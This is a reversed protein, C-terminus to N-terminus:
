KVLIPEFEDIKYIRLKTNEIRLVADETDLIQKFLYQRGLGEFNKGLVVENFNLGYEDITKFIVNAFDYGMFAYEQPYTGYKDKYIDEFNMFDVNEEEYWFSKTFHLNASSVYELRVIQSNEWGPMGFLLVENNKSVENVQRLFMHIFNEDFSNVIVVNSAGDDIYDSLKFKTDVSKASLEINSYNIKNEMDRDENLADLYMSLMDAYAQSSANSHYIFKFHPNTISDLGFEVMSLSHQELSPEFQYYKPNGMSATKSPSFPSLHLIDKEKAYESAAIVNQKTYPGVLIDFEKDKMKSLVNNMGTVSNNDDYVQINFKADFDLEKFALIMGELFSAAIDSEESITMEQFNRLKGKSWARRVSDEMFPLILAVEYVDKKIIENPIITDILATDIVVVQSTTDITTVATDVNPGNEGKVWNQGDFRIVDTSSNIKKTKCSFLAVSLFLIVIYKISSKNM